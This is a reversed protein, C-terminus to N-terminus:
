FTGTRVIKPCRWIPRTCSLKQHCLSPLAPGPHGEAGRPPPPSPQRAALPDPAAAGCCSRGAAPCHPPPITSVRHRGWCCRHVHASRISISRAANPPQTEASKSAVAGGGGRLSPPPQPPQAAILPKIIVSPSSINVLPGSHGLGGLGDGEAGGQPDHPISM